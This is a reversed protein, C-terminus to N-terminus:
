QKRDIRIQLFESCYISIKYRLTEKYSLQNLITVVQGEVSIM